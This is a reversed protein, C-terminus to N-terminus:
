SSSSRRPSSIPPRVPTSRTRRTASSGRWSPLGARGRESLSGGAALVRAARRSVDEAAAAGNKRAILTDPVEALITLFTTVVADSFAAGDRWCRHLTDAGITFTIEFDTVYERAIADRERAADMAERLTVTM